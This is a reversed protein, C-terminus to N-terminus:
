WLPTASATGIVAPSPGSSTRRLPCALLFSQQDSPCRRERHGGLTTWGIRTDSQNFMRRTALLTAGAEWDQAPRAVNSVEM